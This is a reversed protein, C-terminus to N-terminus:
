ARVAILQNIQALLQQVVHEAAYRAPPTKPSTARLQALNEIHAMLCEALSQPNNPAVAFGYGERCIAETESGAPTLALLPKQMALSELVKSPLFCNGLAHDLAPEISLVMDAAVQAACSDAFSVPGHYQLVDSTGTLLSLSPEQAKGYVDVRLRQLLEPHTTRLIDLAATLPAISREGYLNGAFVLHLKDDKARAPSAALWSKAEDETPMVNPCVSIKAAYVPYKKRYHEAQGQTTLTIADARAFCSAELASQRASPTGYPSDAWPDSLHMIWPVNLKEALKKALLAGSMPYSRSYIVNPKQSLAALVRPVMCSVWWMADPVHFRRMRHSMLVHKTLRHLPLSLYQTDFNKLTLALSDDRGTWGEEDPLMTVLRGTAHQDLELLIRRVQIAEAANQPPACPAVVLVNPRRASMIM